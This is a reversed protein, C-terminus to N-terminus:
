QSYQPYQSYQAYKLTTTNYHKLTTTNHQQLKTNNYHQLESTASPQDPLGQLDLFGMIQFNQINKPCVVVPCGM